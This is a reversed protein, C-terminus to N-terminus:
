CVVTVDFGLPLPQGHEDFTQVATQNHLASTSATAFGAVLPLTSNGGTPITETPPTIGEDVTASTSCRAVRVKWRIVYGGPDGAQMGARPGGKGELVKGDSSVIAWARVQGNVFRPNMKVPNITHNRIQSGSITFAAYSSGAMALLSCVLAVLALAHQRLNDLISTV